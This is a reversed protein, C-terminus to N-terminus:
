GSPTREGAGPALRHVESAGFLVYATFGHAALDDLQKRLRKGRVELSVLHGAGRLRGAAAMVAALDDGQPDFILALRGGRETLESGRAQLIAIIREFGISFGCAPVERGLLKGIMRDYRGGGAISSPYDKHSIEFIQGTYYAMGRVLTPDFQISFRGESASGVARM